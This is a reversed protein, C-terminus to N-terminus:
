GALRNVRSAVSVIERTELCLATLRGGWVCGTDLGYVGHEPWHVRGLLSWHGFVIPTGVSRRGPAAFWPLKGAPAQEPTGKESFSLRGGGNCFRLRTCANIVFRLRAEGDLTESWRDPEDGYMASRLFGDSDASRILAECERSLALAQPLDWASPLGAHVMLVGADSDHHMLPRRRLWGVLEDRDPAALLADFTDKRRARCGLAVSVLHLDHNGLVTVASNGLERVFRLVELSKPGRNVLDGTLWLRDRAPDFRLRELLECLEDYCGQIDGIAYTAM